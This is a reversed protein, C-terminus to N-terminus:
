ALAKVDPPLAPNGLTSSTVTPESFWTYRQVHEVGLILATNLATNFATDFLGIRDKNHLLKGMAKPTLTTMFRNYVFSWIYPQEHHGLNDRESSMVVIPNLQETGDANINLIVKFIANMNENAVTKRRIELETVDM